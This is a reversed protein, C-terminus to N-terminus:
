YEITKNLNSYTWYNNDFFSSFDVVQNGAITKYTFIDEIGADLYVARVLESCYLKDRDHLNFDHDFEPHKFLYKNAINSILQGDILFKPKVLIVKNDLANAMFSSASEIRIGDVGSIRGSISHIVKWIGKDQVLIGCHSMGHSDPFSKAIFSSVFSSGLRLLVDGSEFLLTDISAVDEQKISTSIDNNKSLELCLSIILVIILILVIIFKRNELM